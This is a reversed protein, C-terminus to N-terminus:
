LLPVEVLCCSFLLLDILSINGTFNCNWGDKITEQIMGVRGRSLNGVDWPNMMGCNGGGVQALWLFDVDSLTLSIIM